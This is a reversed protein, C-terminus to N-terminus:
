VLLNPLGACPSPCIDMSLPGHKLERSVRCGKQTRAAVLPHRSARHRSDRFLSDEVFTYVEGRAEAVLM